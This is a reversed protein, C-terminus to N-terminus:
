CKIVKLCIVVFCNEVQGVLIAYSGMVFYVWGQVQRLMFLPVQLKLQIPCWTSADDSQFRPLRRDTGQSTKKQTGIETLPFYLKKIHLLKQVSPWIHLSHGWSEWYGLEGWLVTCHLLHHNNNVTIKFFFFFSSRLFCNLKGFQPDWVWM